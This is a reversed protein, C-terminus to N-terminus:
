IVPFLGHGAVRQQRGDITDTVERSASGPLDAAHRSKCARMCCGCRIAPKGPEALRRVSSASRRGRAPLEYGAGQDPKRRDHEDAQHNEARRDGPRDRCQRHITEVRGPYREGEFGRVALWEGSAAGMDLVGLVLLKGFDQFGRDHCDFVTSRLVVVADIQAADAPCRHAVYRVTAIELALVIVWCSTLSCHFSSERVRPRLTRSAM